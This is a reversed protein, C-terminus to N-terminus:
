VLPLTYFNVWSGTVPLLSPTLLVGYMTWRFHHTIISADTYQIRGANSIIAGLM